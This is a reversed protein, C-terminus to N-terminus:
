SLVSIKFGEFMSSETTIAPSALTRSLTSQTRFGGLEIPSYGLPGMQQTTGMTHTSSSDDPQFSPPLPPFALSIQSPKITRQEVDTMNRATTLDTTGFYHNPMPPSKHQSSAGSIDQSPIQVQSQAQSSTGADPSSKESYVAARLNLSPQEAAAAPGQDRAHLLRAAFKSALNEPEAKPVHKAGNWRRSIELLSNILTNFEYPFDTKYHRAHALLM